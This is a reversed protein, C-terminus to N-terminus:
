GVAETSSWAAATVTPPSALKRFTEIRGVISRGVSSFLFYKGPKEKAIQEMQERANSLGAVAEIWVANKDRDGAFIDFSPEKMTGETRRRERRHNGNSDKNKATREAAAEEKKIQGAVNKKVVDLPVQEFHTKPNLM